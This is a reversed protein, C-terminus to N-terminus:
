LLLYRYYLVFRFYLLSSVSDEAIQQSYEAFLVILIPSFRPSFIFGRIKLDPAKSKKIKFPQCCLRWMKM